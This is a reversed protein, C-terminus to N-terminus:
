PHVEGVCVFSVLSQPGSAVMTPTASVLPVSTCISVNGTLDTFYTYYVVPVHMAHLGAVRLAASRAGAIVQGGKTDVTIPSM